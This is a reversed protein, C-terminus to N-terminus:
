KEVVERNYKKMALDRVMTMYEQQSGVDDLAKQALLMTSISATMSEKLGLRIEGRMKEIEIALKDRREGEGLLVDLLIKQATATTTEKDREAFVELREIAELPLRITIKQKEM